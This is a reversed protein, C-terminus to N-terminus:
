KAKPLPADDMAITASQAASWPVLYALDGGKTPVLLITTGAANLSIDFDKEDATKGTLAGGIAVSDRFAVRKLKM